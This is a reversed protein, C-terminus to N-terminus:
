SCASVAHGPLPQTMTDENVQNLQGTGPHRRLRRKVRWYIEGGEPWCHLLWLPLISAFSCLMVMGPVFHFEATAGVGVGSDCQSRLLVFAAPLLGRSAYCIIFINAIPSFPSM